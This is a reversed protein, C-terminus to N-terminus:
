DNYDNIIAFQFSTNMAYFGKTCYIARSNPKYGKEMATGHSTGETVIWVCPIWMSFHGVLHCRFFENIFNFAIFVENTLSPDSACASLREHLSGEESLKELEAFLFAEMSCDVCASGDEVLIDFLSEWM